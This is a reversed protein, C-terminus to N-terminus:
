KRARVCDYSSLEREDYGARLVLEGGSSKCEGMAAALSDYNATGQGVGTCAGAPLAVCVWAIVALVRM